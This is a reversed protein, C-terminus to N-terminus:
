PCQPPPPLPPGPVRQVVFYPARGYISGSDARVGQLRAFLRQYPQTAEHRYTAALASDNVFVIKDPEDCPVFAGTGDYAVYFGSMEIPSNCAALFVGLMVVTPIRM